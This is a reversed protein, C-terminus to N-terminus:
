EKSLHEFFSIYTKIANTETTKQESNTASIKIVIYSNIILQEWSFESFSRQTQNFISAKKM